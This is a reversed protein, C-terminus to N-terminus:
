QKLYALVSGDEGASYRDYPSKRELFIIRQSWLKNRRQLFTSYDWGACKSDSNELILFIEAQAASLM